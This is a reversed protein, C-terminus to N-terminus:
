QFSNFLVNWLIFIKEPLFKEVAKIANSGFVARKESNIMLEKIAEALEKVNDPEVLLGDTNNTIIENPGEHCDFSVIPLGCNQAELLVMPLGEYRSSLVFLSANLYENIIEDTPPYIKIISDMNLDNIQKKLAEEDEGSGIIKVEWEKCIEQIMSIAAILMDFGKQYTLRGVALIKKNKLDAYRDPIFSLANPIVKVNKHFGYHRADAQTLLVVADLRCYFIRRLIRSFLSVTYYNFHECGVVRLNKRIFSSLVNIEHTTGILIDFQEITDIKKIEQIIPIYTFFRKIKKVPINIRLHYIKVEKTLQYKPEGMNSSISIIVPNYQGYDILLNVLNCVAREIGARNTIDFIVIAINKM